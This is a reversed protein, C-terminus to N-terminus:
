LLDATSYLTPTPVDLADAVKVVLNRAGLFRELTEPLIQSIEKRRQADLMALKDTRM